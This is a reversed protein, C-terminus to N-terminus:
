PSSTQTSEEKSIATNSEDAEHSIIEVTSGEPAYPIRTTALLDGPLLEGRFIIDDSTSWLTTIDLRRIKNDRIVIIQNLDSLTSRPITYVDKLTGAPITAKVPQGLYLSPKTSKLGFPDVIRAIVFIQRSEPDLEGETRLISGKWTKSETHSTVTSSFTVSEEETTAGGPKNPPEYFELDRPTIPLRVIAIDTTFIEGLPTNASIQQGIGVSRSSVRGNYPARVKTNSLNRKARELNSAASTVDAEVEKLQPTRLVLDSPAETFGADKWNLLAQKARAQEQAYASEARALQAAATEIETQADATGLELLIDGESFFAGNEFKPSIKIIRGGTQSTLSTNHHARVEGQSVVEVTYDGKELPMVKTKIATYKSRYRNSGKSNESSVDDDEKSSFINSECGKMSNFALFGGGLIAIALVLHIIHRM